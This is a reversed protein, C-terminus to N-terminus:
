NAISLKVYSLKNIKQMNFLCSGNKIACINKTDYDFAKIGKNNEISNSTHTHTHVAGVTRAKVM